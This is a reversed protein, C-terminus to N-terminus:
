YTSLEATDTRTTNKYWIFQLADVYGEAQGRVYGLHFDGYFEETHTGNSSGFLESVTGHNTHFRLGVILFTGNRKYLNPIQRIGTYITVRDIYENSKLKLRHERANIVQRGRSKSKCNSYVFSLYIIENEMTGGIIANLRDNFTLPCDKADNFPQGGTPDGHFPGVRILLLELFLIMKKLKSNM